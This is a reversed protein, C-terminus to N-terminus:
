YINKDEPWNIYNYVGETNRSHKFARERNGYVTTPCWEIEVTSLWQNVKRASLREWNSCALIPITKEFTENFDPYTLLTDWEMIWNIKDFADQEVQM